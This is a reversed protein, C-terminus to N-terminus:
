NFRNMAKDIGDDLAIRVAETGRKILRKLEGAESATFRSLVFSIITRHKVIKDAFHGFRDSKRGVGIRFRIFADTKLHEMISEVGRHGATGGKERIRIKGLPLDIDDHIVWVDEPKLKYFQLLATVAFGSSNMFTIPKVLLIEGIKCIVAKFKEQEQWVGTEVGLERSLKDVVMFGVNHRSDKYEGGPNGLGIILLMNYIRRLRVIFVVAKELM